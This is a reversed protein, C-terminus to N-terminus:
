GARKGKLGQIVLFIVVQWSVLGFLGGLDYAGETVKKEVGANQEVMEIRDAVVGVIVATHEMLRVNKEERRMGVEGDLMTRFKRFHGDTMEVIDGARVGAMGLLASISLGSGLSWELVCQGHVRGVSRMPPERSERVAVLGANV